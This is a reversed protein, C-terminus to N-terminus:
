GDARVDLMEVVASNRELVFLFFKRFSGYIGRMYKYVIFVVLAIERNGRSSNEFIKSSIMSM